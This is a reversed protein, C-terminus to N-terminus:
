TVRAIRKVTQVLESLDFPKPVYLEIGCDYLEKIKEQEIMGSVAVVRIRSTKANSKISRLVDKGNIDPLMIDLLIVDPMFSLTKAGADFGTRAVELEFEEVESFYEHLMELLPEDDDVILVRTKSPARLEEPIPINNEEMFKLLSERPIRRFRSGPVRYGQLRDGDFCRIITHLSLKCLEAVEGTTFVLKGQLLPGTVM